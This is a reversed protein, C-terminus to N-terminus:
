SSLRVDFSPCALLEVVGGGAILAPGEGFETPEAVVPAPDLPTGAWMEDEVRLCTGFSTAPAMIGSGVSSCTSLLLNSGTEHGAHM